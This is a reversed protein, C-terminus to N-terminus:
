IYVITTASLKAAAAPKTFGGPVKAAIVRGHDLLPGPVNTAGKVKLDFLVHGALIGAGTVTAETADYPVLLGAVKAVPTGSRLYGDPYHTAETFASVNVTETRANGIAHGSGLWALDGSGYTETTLRPM